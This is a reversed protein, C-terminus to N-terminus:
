DHRRSTSPPRLREPSGATRGGRPRRAGIGARAERVFAAMSRSLPALVVIWGALHQEGISTLRYLRRAPGRGETEREPAVKGNKEFQGLRRHLAARGIGTDTLARRGLDGSLDYGRSRGKEKLLLLVAPEAFRYLNGMACTCPHNRGHRRCERQPM